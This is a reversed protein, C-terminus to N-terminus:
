SKDMSMGSYYTILPQGRYGDIDMLWQHVLRLKIIALAYFIAYLKM